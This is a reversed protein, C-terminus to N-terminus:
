TAAFASQLDLVADVEDVGVRREGKFFMKLTEGSICIGQPVGCKLRQFFFGNQDNDELNVM